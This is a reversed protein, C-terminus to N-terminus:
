SALCSVGHSSVLQYTKEHPCDCKFARTSCTRNGRIVGPAVSAADAGGQGRLCLLRRAAARLAARARASAPQWPDNPGIIRNLLCLVSVTRVSRARRPEERSVGQENCLSSRRVTLPSPLAPSLAAQWHSSCRHCGPTQFRIALPCLPFSSRAHTCAHCDDVCVM